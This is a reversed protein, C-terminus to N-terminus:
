HAHARSKSANGTQSNAQFMVKTLIPLSNVLMATTVVALILAVLGASRLEFAPLAANVASSNM